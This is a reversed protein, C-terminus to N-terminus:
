LCSAGGAVLGYALFRFSDKSEEEQGEVSLGHLLYEKNLRWFRESVWWRSQEMEM